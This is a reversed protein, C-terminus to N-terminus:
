PLPQAALAAEILGVLRASGPATSAGFTDIVQGDRGILVKNFNWGPVFGRSDRLWAYFPHAQPGRIRTIGTMPMDEVGFTLECYARAEAGTELEQRFDDSPVALVVLGRAAYRDQLAQLGRFQPAFGFRSATNVVLVVKGRWDTLRIPGDLGDFTVDPVRAPAALVLGAGLWLAALVASLAASLRAILPFLQPRNPLIRATM